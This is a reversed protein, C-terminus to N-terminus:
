LDEDYDAVLNITFFVDFGVLPRISEIDKTLEPIYFLLLFWEINLMM